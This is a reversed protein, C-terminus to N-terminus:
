VVKRSGVHDDLWSRLRTVTDVLVVEEDRFTNVKALIESTPAALAGEGISNEFFLNASKGMELVATISGDSIVEGVLEITTGGFYGDRLDVNPIFIETGDVEGRYTISDTDFDITYRGLVAELAKCEDPTATSNYFRVIEGTFPNKGERFTEGRRSTLMGFSYLDRTPTSM